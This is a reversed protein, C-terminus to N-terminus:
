CNHNFCYVREQAEERTLQGSWGQGPLWARFYYTSMTQWAFASGDRKLDAPCVRAGLVTRGFRDRSVQKTFPKFLDQFTAPKCM